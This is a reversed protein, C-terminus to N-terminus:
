FSLEGRKYTFLYTLVSFELFELSCMILYIWIYGHVINKCIIKWYKEQM